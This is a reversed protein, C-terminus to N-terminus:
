SSERRRDREDGAERASRAGPDNDLAGARDLCEALRARDQEILGSRQRDARRLDALDHSAIAGLGALQQPERSRNVAQGCVDEAFREHGGGGVRAELQREWGVDVLLGALSDSPM